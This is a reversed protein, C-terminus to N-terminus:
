AGAGGDDLAAALAALGAELPTDTLLICDGKPTKDRGARAIQAATVPLRMGAKELGGIMAAFLRSPIPAIVPSVGAAKAVAGYLARQTVPAPGAIACIRGGSRQDTLESVVMRALAKFYVPQQLAAGRGPSPIILYRRMARMLRSLNQDDPYGYIMTPRVISAHPAATRVASEAALLRAYVDAQPDIAVNNSSFFIAPKAPSLLKAARSSATLIPTFIVADVQSLADAVGQADALELRVLDAGLAILADQVSRRPTRYSALVGHGRQRLVQVIESGLASGAGVVLVRDITM